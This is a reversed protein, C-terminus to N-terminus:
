FEVYFPCTWVQFCARASEALTKTDDGGQDRGHLEYAGVVQAELAPLAEQVFKLLAGMSPELLELADFYQRPLSELLVRDVAEKLRDNQESSQDEAEAEVLLSQKNRQLAEANDSEARLLTVVGPEPQRPTPFLGAQECAADLESFDVPVPVPIPAEELSGHAVRRFQRVLSPSLYGRSGAPSACRAALGSWLPTLDPLHTHRAAVLGAESEQTNAQLSTSRPADSNSSPVAEHRLEPDLVQSPTIRKLM